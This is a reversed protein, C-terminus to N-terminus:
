RMEAGANPTDFIVGYPSEYPQTRVAKFQFLLGSMDQEIEEGVQSREEGEKGAEEGEGCEKIEQEWLPPQRGQKVERPRALKRQM